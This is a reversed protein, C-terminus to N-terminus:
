TKLENTAADHLFISARECRLIECAANAIHHLLADLDTTVALMRTVDLVLKAQAASIASIDSAANPTGTATM